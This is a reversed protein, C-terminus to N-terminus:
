GLVQGLFGGPSLLLFGTQEEMVTESVLFGCVTGKKLM